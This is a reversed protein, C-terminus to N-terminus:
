PRSRRLRWICEMPWSRAWRDDRTSLYRSRQRGWPRTEELGEIDLGSRRFLEIWGAYTRQFETTSGREMKGLDFYARQLRRSQQGRHADYAVPLFPSATAFVLRGGPRLVRACEPISRTPDAFTLAGWDCFALDFSQDRFPLVEVNGRM